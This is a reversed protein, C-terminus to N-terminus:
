SRIDTYIVEVIRKVRSYHNVQAMEKHDSDRGISVVELMLLKGKFPNLSIRDRRDLRTNLCEQYMRVFSSKWGAKVTNKSDSPEINFWGPILYKDIKFNMVLSYKRFMPNFNKEWDVMQGRYVGPEILVPRDDIEPLSNEDRYSALMEDTVLTM